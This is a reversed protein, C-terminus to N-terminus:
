GRDDRLRRIAYKTHYIGRAVAKVRYEAKSYDVDGNGDRRPENTWVLSHEDIPLDMAATSIILDYGIDAGFYDLSAGTGTFGQTGRTASLNARFKVPESYLETKVGTYDGNEDVEQEVGLYTAYWLDHNNRLLNRM